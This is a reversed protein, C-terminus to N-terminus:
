FNAARRRPKLSQSRGYIANKGDDITVDVWYNTANFTNMPYGDFTQYSGQATDTASTSNPATLPGNTLGASGSGSSWYNATSTYGNDTTFYVGARYRQNATLAIPTTLTVTNWGSVLPSPLAQSSGSVLSGANAGTVQYLRSAHDSATVTGSAWVHIQTLTCGSQTVYFEVALTLDSTDSTQAGPGSVGSFLRYTAM